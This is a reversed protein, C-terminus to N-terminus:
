FCMLGAEWAVTERILSSAGGTDISFRYNRGDNITLDM